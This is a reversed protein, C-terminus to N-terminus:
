DVIIGSDIVRCIVNRMNLSGLIVIFVSGFLCGGGVVLIMILFLLSVNLVVEGIILVGDVLVILFGVLIVVIGMVFVIGGVLMVMGIRVGLIEDMCDMFVIMIGILFLGIIDGVFILEMLVILVMGDILVLM